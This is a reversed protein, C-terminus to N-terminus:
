HYYVIRALKWICVGYMFPAPLRALNAVCLVFSEGKCWQLHVAQRFLPDMDAHYHATILGAARLQEAVAETDKRTLCYVIGSATGLNHEKMWAVM